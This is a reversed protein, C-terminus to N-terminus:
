RSGVHDKDEDDIMLSEPIGRNRPLCGNHRSYGRNRSMMNKASTAKDFQSQASMDGPVGDHGMREMMSRM